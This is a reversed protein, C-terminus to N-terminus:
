QKTQNQLTTQRKLPMTPLQFFPFGGFSCSGNSGELPQVAFFCWLILIPLSFVPFHTSELDSM